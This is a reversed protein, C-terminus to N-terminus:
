AWIVGERLEGQVLLESKIHSCVDSLFTVSGKCRIQTETIPGHEHPVSVSFGGDTSWCKSWENVREFTELAAKLVPLQARNQHALVATIHYFKTCAARSSVGVSSYSIGAKWHCSRATRPLSPAATHVAYNQADPAAPLAVGGVVWWILTASGVCFVVVRNIVPQYLFLLSSMAALDNVLQVILPFPSSPSVRHSVFLRFLTLFASRPAPPSCM